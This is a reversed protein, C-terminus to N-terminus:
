AMINNNEHYHELKQLLLKHNITDFAKRLDIYIGLTHKKNDMAKTLEDILEILAYCTSHNKRFGYQGDNLIDNKELFSELRIDYLKELIKSFQPLM